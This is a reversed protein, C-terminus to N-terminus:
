NLNKALSEEVLYDWAEPSLDESPFPDGDSGIVTEPVEGSDILRRREMLEQYEDYSIHGISPELAKMCRQYEEYVPFDAPHLDTENADERIIFVDEGVIFPRYRGNISASDPRYFIIDSYQYWEDSRAPDVSAETSNESEDDDVRRGEIEMIIKIERWREVAKRLHDFTDDFDQRMEEDLIISINRYNEITQIADEPVEDIGDTYAIRGYELLKSYGKKPVFAAFYFFFGAMMVFALGILSALLVIGKRSVAIRSGSGDDAEEVNNISEERRSSWMLFWNM